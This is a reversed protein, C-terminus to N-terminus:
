WNRVIGFLVHCFQYWNTNAPILLTDLIVALIIGTDHLYWWLITRATKQRDPITRYRNQCNKCFKQHKNLSGQGLLSQSYSPLIKSFELLSWKFLNNSDESLLHHNAKPDIRWSAFHPHPKAAYVDLLYDSGYVDLTVLQTCSISSFQALWGGRPFTCFCSVTLRYFLQKKIVTMSLLPLMVM